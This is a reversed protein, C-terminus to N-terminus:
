CAAYRAEALLVVADWKTLTQSMPYDSPKAARM